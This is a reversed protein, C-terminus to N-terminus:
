RIATEPPLSFSILNMKQAQTIHEIKPSKEARFTSLAVSYMRDLWTLIIIVERERENMM